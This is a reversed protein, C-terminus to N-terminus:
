EGHLVGMDDNAAGISHQTVRVILWDHKRSALKACPKLGHYSGTQSLRKLITQSRVHNVTALEKTDGHKVPIGQEALLRDFEGSPMLDINVVVGRQKLMALIDSMLPAQIFRESVQPVLYGQAPVIIQAPYPAPQQAMDPAMTVVQM